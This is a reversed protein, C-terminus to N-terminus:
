FDDVGAVDGESQLPALEGPMTDQGPGLVAVQAGNVPHHADHTTGLGHETHGAGGPLGPLLQNNRANTASTTAGTLQGGAIGRGEELDKLARSSKGTCGKGDGLDELTDKAVMMPGAIILGCIFVNLPGSRTSKVLQSLIEEFTLPTGERLKRAVQENDYTFDKL